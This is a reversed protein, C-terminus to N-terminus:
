SYNQWTTTLYRGQGKGRLERCLHRARLEVRLKQPEVFKCCILGLKQTLDEQLAPKTSLLEVLQGLSSLGLLHESPQFSIRFSGTFPLMHHPCFGYLPGEEEVWGRYGDAPLLKLISKCQQELDEESPEQCWKQLVELHREAIGRCLDNGLGLYKFVQELHETATEQEDKTEPVDLM